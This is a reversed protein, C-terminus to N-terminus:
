FFTEREIEGRKFGTNLNYVDEIQFLSIYNFNNKLQEDGLHKEAAFKPITIVYSLFEKKINEFKAKKRMFEEIDDSELRSIKKYKEWINEADANVAMFLNVTNYDDAILEFIEEKEDKFFSKEYKLNKIKSILEESNDNSKLQDIKNFYKQHINKM